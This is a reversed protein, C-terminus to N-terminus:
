LFDSLLIGIGIRNVYRNYDIMSEGYGSFYQMYGKFYKYKWLPFSWGAEVAGRKFGSELNNRLMLSFTHRN